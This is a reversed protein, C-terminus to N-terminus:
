RHTLFSRTGSNLLDICEPKEGHEQPPFLGCAQESVLELFVAQGAQFQPTGLVRSETVKIEQGDHTRMEYVTSPGLPLSMEVTAALRYSGPERHIRLNEPRISMLIAQHVPVPPAIASKLVGATGFSVTCGSATTTEVQGALLNSTGVFQSVFLSAPHDYLEQPTAVQQIVGHDMVAIRDAMTMAEEQDHTVFVTTIGRQNLLRKVEIQMDLRLSKDLASFPEDLLLIRPEVALARALAVRQQQGGSLEKPYRDAMGQLKVLALMEDIQTQQRQRPYGQAKLGYAINQRVTMHPFLAYNQFVIGIGRRNPPVADVRQQGIYIRGQTPQLFGSILKLLTTKGCGSSGLLSVFEGAAVELNVTKLATFSGFRHTIQDLTLPYQAQETGSDKPPATINRPVTLNM